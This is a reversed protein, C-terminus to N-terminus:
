QYHQSEVYHGIISPLGAFRFCEQAKAGDLVSSDDDALFRFMYNMAPRLYGFPIRPAATLNKEALMAAIAQNIPTVLDAVSWGQSARGPFWRTTFQRDPGEMNELLAKIDDVSLGYYIETRPFFRGITQLHNNQHMLAITQQMEPQGISLVHPYLGEMQLDSTISMLVGYLDSPINQLEDVILLPRHARAGHCRSVIGDILRMQLTSRERASFARCGTQPLCTRLIDEPKKPKIGLFSWLFAVVAGGLMAPIVECVYKAFESKGVRQIGWIHSGPLDCAIWEAVRDVKREIEPTWLPKMPFYQAQASAEPARSQSADGAESQGLQTETPHVSM